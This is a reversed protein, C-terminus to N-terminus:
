KTYQWLCALSTGDTLIIPVLIVLAMFGDFIGILLYAFELEGSLVGFLAVFLYTFLLWRFVTSYDRLKM